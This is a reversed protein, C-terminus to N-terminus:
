AISPHTFARELYTFSGGDSHYSLGLRVYSRGTLLAVLGGIAFAVPAAHGSLSVSLGLVSFIGGGVMGGVGLAVLEKLGLKESSPKAMDTIM